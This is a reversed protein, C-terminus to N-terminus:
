CIARLPDETLRHPQRLAALYTDLDFTFPGIALTGWERRHPIRFESWTVRSVQVSVRDLLAWCWWIGCPCGALATEGPPCAYEPDAYTYGDTPEGLLHRSPWGIATVPLGDHAFLMFRDLEVDSDFDDADLETNWLPGTSEWVSLRLDVGDIGFAMVEQGTDMAPHTFFEIENV